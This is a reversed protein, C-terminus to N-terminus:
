KRWSKTRQCSLQLPSKIEFLPQSSFPNTTRFATKGGEVGKGGSTKRGASSDEAGAPLSNEKTGNDLLSTLLKSPEDTGYRSPEDANNLESPIWRFAPQIGRCICYGCFIRVQKLLAHQRSRCRELALVLSMNDLLFLQRIQSGFMSMAIRKLSKVAARAELVIIGEDGYQWHGWLKPTWLARRLLRAPVEDFNEDLQWGSLNLYTQADIEGSQWQGTIDDRVFGAATLSSERASHGSARRFRSREKVRGVRKVDELDWFATCVGYGTTSADSSCVLENWPKWWDSQLFIMLGSFAM